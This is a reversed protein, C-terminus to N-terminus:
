AVLFSYDWPQRYYFHWPKPIQTEGSSLPCISLKCEIHLCTLIILSGFTYVGQQFKSFTTLNRSFEGRTYTLFHGFIRLMIVPSKEQSFGAGVFFVKIRGKENASDHFWKFIGSLLRGYRGIGIPGNSKFALHIIKVVLNRKGSRKKNQQKWDFM